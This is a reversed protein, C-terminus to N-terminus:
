RDVEEDSCLRRLAWAVGGIHDACSEDVGGGPRRRLFCVAPAGCVRCRYTLAPHTIPQEIAADQM